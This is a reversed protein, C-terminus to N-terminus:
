IPGIFDGPRYGDSGPCTIGYTGQDLIGSLNLSDHKHVTTTIWEDMFEVWRYQPPGQRHGGALRKAQQRMRDFRQDSAITFVYVDRPGGSENVVALTFPGTRPNMSGDLTCGAGTITVTGMSTPSPPTVYRDTPRVRSTDHVGWVVSFAIAVFVAVLAITGLARNRDKRARFRDFREIGGTQMSARAEVARRIGQAARRARTELTM